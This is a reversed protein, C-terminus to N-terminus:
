QPEGPDAFRPDNVFDMDTLANLFAKIQLRKQATLELTLDPDTFKMFADVTTGPHGGDNYHDLVEDITAFRGDHMYPATLMINRLTPTKFKGADFPDNTVEARGMDTYPDTQVANNHFQEDTFLGASVSHCHFCDAGGQGVVTSDMGPIQIPVGVAGGEAQFLFLGQGEDVTFADEGRVVRDYKSNGSILTRLFQAIARAANTSDIVTTGFAANFLGPYAPHGQLEAMANMWTEHMEITDRVPRLIQEELTAIRGDWFYSAAYGLNILAMASRRGAIGDIGNSVANGDTFAMAPAHCTACSMTNNGSLREEYFLYRGLTVGEVTMPNNAPIPMPPLNAPIQLTYPTGVAGSSPPDVMPSEEERCSSALGIASLLILIYRVAHKM